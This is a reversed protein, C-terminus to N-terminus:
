ASGDSRVHRDPGAPVAEVLVFGEGLGHFEVGECDQDEEDRDEGACQVEEVVDSPAPPPFAVGRPARLVGVGM